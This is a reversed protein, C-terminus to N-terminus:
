ALASGILSALTPSPSPLPAAALLRQLVEPELGRWLDPPLPSGPQAFGPSSAPPAEGPSAPAIPQGGPAPQDAADGAEPPAAGVGPLPPLEHREIQARAPVASLALPLLM